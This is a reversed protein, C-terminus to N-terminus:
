DNGIKKTQMARSIIYFGTILVTIGFLIINIITVGTNPVNTIVQNGEEDVTTDDAPDPDEELYNIDYLVTFRTKVSSPIEIGSVTVDNSHVQLLFYDETVLEKDTIVDDCDVSNDEIMGVLTDTSAKLQEISIKAAAPTDSDCVRTDDYHDYISYNNLKIKTPLHKILETTEYKKSAVNLVQYHVIDLETLSTYKTFDIDELWKYNAVLRVIKDENPVDFKDLRNNTLDVTTLKTLKSIDISSILNYNVLLTELLENKSLDLEMINNVSLDLYKLSLLPTIDIEELYNDRLNLAVLSTNKSLDIDGLVNNHVNLAKLKTNKSLDLESVSNYALYLVELNSLESVDLAELSNRNLVVTKITENDEPFIVEKVSSDAAVLGILKSNESLDITEISNSSLDLYELETNDSLDIETIDNNSLNLEKLGTLKAIDAANDIGADVCSLSTIGELEADTIEDDEEKNLKELVCQYVEESEFGADEANKFDKKDNQITIKSTHIMLGAILILVFIILKNNKM